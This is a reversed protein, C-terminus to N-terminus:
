FLSAIRHKRSGTEIDASMSRTSHQFNKKSFWNQRHSIPSQKADTSFSFKRTEAFGDELDEVGSLGSLGSFKRQIKDKTVSAQTQRRLSDVSTDTSNKRKEGEKQRRKKKKSEEKLRKSSKLTKSDANLFM